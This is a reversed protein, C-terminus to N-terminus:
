MVRAFRTLYTDPTNILHTDELEDDDPSRVLRVHPSFSRVLRVHPSFSRVLRVHPGFNRKVVRVHSPLNQSKKIYRYMKDMFVHFPHKYSKDKIEDDSTGYEPNSKMVREMNGRMVREMNGRMVREINGRMVREINGRKEVDEIKEEEEDYEKFYISHVFENNKHKGM